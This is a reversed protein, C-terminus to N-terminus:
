SITTGSSWRVVENGRRLRREATELQFPGFQYISNAQAPPM